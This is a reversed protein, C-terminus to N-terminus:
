LWGDVISAGLPTQTWAQPDGFGATDLTANLVYYPPQALAASAASGSIEAYLGLPEGAASLLRRRPLAPAHADFWQEICELVPASPDIGGRSPIRVLRTLLDVISAGGRAHADTM